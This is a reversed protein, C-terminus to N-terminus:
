LRRAASWRSPYVRALGPPRSERTRSQPPAPYHPHLRVPLRVGFHQTELNKIVSSVVAPTQQYLRDAFTRPQDRRTRRKQFCSCCSSVSSELVPSYSRGDNQATAPTQSYPIPWSSDGPWHHSYPCTNHSHSDRKAMPFRSRLIQYLGNPDSYECYCRSFGTTQLHESRKSSYVFVSDALRTRVPGQYTRCQHMPENTGNGFRTVVTIHQSTISLHIM